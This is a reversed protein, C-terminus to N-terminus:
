MTLLEIRIARLKQKNSVVFRMLSRHRLDLAITHISDVTNRIRYVLPSAFQTIWKDTHTLTFASWM